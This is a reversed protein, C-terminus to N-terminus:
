QWLAQIPVAYLRDGYPYVDTGNYLVIGRHFNDVSDRLNELGVFDKKSVSQSLKVEVGVLQRLGIEMVIDVEINSTTRYHFFSINSTTESWSALKRLEMLVFSELLQGLFTANREFYGQEIGLLSCILGTDTLSCKPSKILRKGLNAKWAPLMDILFISELLSLYRRLTTTPMDLGRSISATNLLTATRSALLHLVKPIEVIGEINTIDRIDRQIMTTVYSDFWDQRDRGILHLPEPYGGTIIREILRSRTEEEYRKYTFEEAFIKDIFNTNSEEIEAQALPFMRIVGIRGALSDAIKPLNMVNASGTLLYRGKDTMEDVDLKIPLFVEPLRQVEDIVVPKDIGLIYGQPDAAAAGLEQANDFTRYQLGLSKVIKKVETSKGTQRAGILMLVRFVQLKRRIDVGIKREIM